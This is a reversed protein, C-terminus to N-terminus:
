FNHSLGLSVLNYNYNKDFMYKYGLTLLFDSDLFYGLQVGLEGYTRPLKIEKNSNDYYRDKLIKFNWKATTSIHLKKDLVTTYNVGIGSNPINNSFTRVTKHSKVTNRELALTAFPYIRSNNDVKYIHGVEAGIMFKNSKYNSSVLTNRSRNYGLKSIILTDKWNYGVFYNFGLTRVKYNEGESKFRSKLNGLAIGAFLNKNRVLNSNTGVLFDKTKTYTSNPHSKGQAYGVFDIYQNTNSRGGLDLDKFIVNTRFQEEGRGLNLRFHVDGMNNQYEGAFLNMCFLTFLAIIGKKM